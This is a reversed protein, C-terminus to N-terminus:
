LAVPESDALINRWTAVCPKSADLWLEIWRILERAFCKSTTRCSRSVDTVVCTLM